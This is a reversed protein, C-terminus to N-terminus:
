RQAKPPSLSRWRAQCKGSCTDREHLRLEGLRRKIGLTTHLVVCGCVSYKTRIHYIVSHMVGCRFCLTACFTISATTILVFPIILCNISNLPTYLSIEANDM